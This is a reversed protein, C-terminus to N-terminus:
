LALFLTRRRGSTGQGCYYALEGKGRGGDEEMGMIERQCFVVL